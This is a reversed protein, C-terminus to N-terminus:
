SEGELRKRNEEHEKRWQYIARIVHGRYTVLWLYSTTRQRPIM